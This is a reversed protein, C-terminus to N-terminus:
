AQDRAVGREALFDLLEQESLVPVGLEEAKQLKSGGGPGAVLYDTRRSVSSSVNAGLSRLFEEIGSRTFGELRGTVVFTLGALVQEAAQEGQTKALGLDLLEQVLATNEPLSFFNLISQAIKEGVTPIALLEEKGLKMLNQFSGVAQAVERAAEEGVFRIGLGYLVRAMPQNRSEEIAALLNDASKEGFRELSLLDEKKLRYFDAPTRVLGKELLQGVIAPGLGEIDLAGKSAFHVLRELRQAPCQNNICRVVAEGPERVVREGCSPCHEPMKFVVESGDRREELSRVIEPIVDGAKQLVVYDGIRIDRSRVIDENHLTARSVTSGAVTVPELEALPTLAGTRGVQVAINLVRTIVQQAPFKYAVAWRPSRATTGLAHQLEFENVKIVIGDIEYPLSSRKEEWTRIYEFVQDFSTCLRFHPNVRLGLGRLYELAEAQTKVQSHLRSEVAFLFVDLPRKATMRPDLQRLSGAAANRPNAFPSEGARQREENFALFDKRNIFVEGRVNITVPENLRLPLSRVTRLNATVDEGTHGDGRTAGRVFVGSEYDLSVSLGDIKLECVFSVARGVQKEVRERFADLEEFSFVNALSLLPEGHVVPAFGPSPESGVRQTPSDPTILEPHAEELATLERMLADYEADSIIPDDMVYYRYNHERIASRLQEIRQKVDM